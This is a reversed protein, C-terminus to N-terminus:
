QKGKPKFNLDKCIGCLALIIADAIDNDDTKIGIGKLYEAVAQKTKGKWKKSDLKFFKSRASKALILEFDINKSICQAIALTGMKALRLCGTRNFGIFVEEIVALKEKDFLKGFEYHIQKLMEKQSNYNFELFCWDFHIYKKDTKIFCVGTRKATDLGICSFNKKIKYDLKKELKKILIKM